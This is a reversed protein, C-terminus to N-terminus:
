LQIIIKYKNNNYYCMVCHFVASFMVCRIDHIIQTLTLFFSLSREPNGTDKHCVANCYIDNTAMAISIRSYWKCIPMKGCYKKEKPNFLQQKQLDEQSVGNTCYCGIIFGHGGLETTKCVSKKTACGVWVVAMGSQCIVTLLQWGSCCM